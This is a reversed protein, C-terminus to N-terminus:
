QSSADGVQCELPRTKEGPQHPPCATLSHFQIAADAVGGRLSPPQPHNGPTPSAPLPIFRACDLWRVPKVSSAPGNFTEDLICLVV